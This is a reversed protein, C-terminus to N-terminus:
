HGPHTPKCQSYIPEPVVDPLVMFMFAVHIKLAKWFGDHYLLRRCFNSDPLSVPKVYVVMGPSFLVSLM